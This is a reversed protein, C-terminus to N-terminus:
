EAARWDLWRDSLQNVDCNSCDVIQICYGGLWVGTVTMNEPVDKLVVGGVGVVSNNGVKVGQIITANAGIFCGTWHRCQWM